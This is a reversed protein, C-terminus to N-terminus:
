AKRLINKTPFDHEKLVTDLYGVQIEKESYREYVIDSLILLELDTAM